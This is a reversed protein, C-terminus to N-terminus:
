ASSPMRSLTADRPSPSTYLLCVRVTSPSTTSDLYIQYDNKKDIFRNAKFADIESAGEENYMTVKSGIGTVYKLIEDSLMSLKNDTQLPM